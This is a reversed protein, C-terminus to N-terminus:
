REPFLMLDNTKEPSGPEPTTIFEGDPDYMSAWEGRLPITPFPPIFPPVDRTVYSDQYSIGREDEGLNSLPTPSATMVRDFMTATYTVPQLNDNEYNDSRVEPIYPQSPFIHSPSSSVANSFFTYTYSEATTLTNPTRWYWQGEPRIPLSSSPKHRVHTVGDGSTKCGRYRTGIPNGSYSVSTYAM